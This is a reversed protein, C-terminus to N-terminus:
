KLYNELWKKAEKFTMGYGIPSIQNEGDYVEWGQYQSLTKIRYQNFGYLSRSSDHVYNNYCGQPHQGKPHLKSLKIKM